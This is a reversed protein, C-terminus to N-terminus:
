LEFLLQELKIRGAEDDFQEEASIYLLTKLFRQASTIDWLNKKKDLKSFVYPNLGTKQLDNYTLVLILSKMAWILGAIIQSNEVGQKGLAMYEVWADKKNKAIVYDTFLFPTPDKGEVVKRPEFHVISNKKIFADFEKTTNKEYLIITHPSHILEELQYTAATEAMETFLYKYVILYTPKEFFGETRFEDYVSACQEIDTVIYEHIISNKKKIAEKEQIFFDYDLSTVAYIM